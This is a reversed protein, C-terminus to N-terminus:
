MAQAPSLPKLHYSGRVAPTRAGRAMAARVRSAIREPHYLDAWTIRVVEYGLRRLADEREKERWLRASMSAAEMGDLGYKLRGDFEVITKGEILFDAIGVLRGADDYVFVQTLPEPLAAAMLQVRTRSEGVSGSRPDAFAVARGAAIAGPWDLCRIHLARLQELPAHSLRLASDVAVVGHEFDASRAVDLGTRLASTVLLGASTVVDNSGLNAQHHWVGAERRASHDPRTLHLWDYSPEWLELALVAAATQHSGVVPPKALLSVSRFGLVHREVEGAQEWIEASVYAGRRVRHWTRGIVARRAEDASIGCALAQARTFVGGQAAALLTLRLTM